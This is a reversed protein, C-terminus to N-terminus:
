ICTKGENDQSCVAAFGECHRLQSKGSYKWYYEYHDLLQVKDLIVQLIRENSLNRLRQDLYIDATLYVGDDVEEPDLFYHPLEFLM